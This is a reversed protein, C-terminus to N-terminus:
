KKNKKEKIVNKRQLSFILHPLIDSDVVEEALEESYNALRGIALAASQQIAPINDLLLPRLLSLADQSQLASIYTEKKALDAITQAFSLREKHYKELTNSVIRSIAQMMKKKKKKKLNKSSTSFL